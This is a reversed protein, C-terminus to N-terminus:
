AAKIEQDNDKCYCLILTTPRGRYAEYFQEVVDYFTPYNSEIDIFALYRASDPSVPTNLSASCIHDSPVNSFEKVFIEVNGKMYPEIERIREKSFNWWCISQLNDIISDSFRKGVCVAPNGYWITYPPIDQRVCSGAGIVAGNGVIVDSIFTVDNGICVDNGIITMGKRTLNTLSQGFQEKGSIGGNHDAYDPIAGMYVSKWDHNLDCIIQVNEGISVYRGIYVLHATEATSIAHSSHLTIDGTYSSRGVYAIPSAQTQQSFSIMTM